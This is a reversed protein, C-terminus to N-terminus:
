GENEDVLYRSGAGLEWRANDIFTKTLSHCHNEQKILAGWEQMEEASGDTTRVMQQWILVAKRLEFDISRALKVAEPGGMLTIRGLAMSLESLPNRIESNDSRDHLRNSVIEVKGLFTAYAEQKQERLGNGHERDSTTAWADENIRRTEKLTDVTNRRNVGATM